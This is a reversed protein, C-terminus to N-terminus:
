PPLPARPKEMCLLPATVGQPKGTTVGSSNESRGGLRSTKKGPTQPRHSALPYRKSIPNQHGPPPPVRPATVELDESCYRFHLHGPGVELLCLPPPQVGVLSPGTMKEASGHLQHPLCDQLWRPGPVPAQPPCSRQAPCGRPPPPRPAARPPRPTPRARPPPPARPRLRQLTLLPPQSPPTQVMPGRASFALSHHGATGLMCTAHSPRPPSLQLAPEVWRVCHAAEDQRVPRPHDRPGPRDRGGGVWTPAWSAQPGLPVGEM